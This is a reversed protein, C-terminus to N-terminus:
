AANRDTLKIASSLIVWVAYPVVLWLVVFVWELVWLGFQSYWHSTSARSATYPDGADDTDEYHTVTYGDILERGVADRIRDYNAFSAFSLFAALGVLAGRFVRLIPISLRSRIHETRLLLAAFLTCLWFLIFVATHVRFGEGLSFLAVLAVLSLVAIVISQPYSNM